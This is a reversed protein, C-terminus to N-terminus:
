CTSHRSGIMSCLGLDLVSLPLRSLLHPLLWIQPRPGARSSIAPDGRRPHPIGVRIPLNPAAETRACISIGGTGVAATMSWFIWWAWGAEGGWARACLHDGPRSRNGPADQVITCLLAALDTYIGALGTVQMTIGSEEATERVAADSASEGPDVHGGPLECDGTDCRRVLLLRGTVDRVAAFACPAV